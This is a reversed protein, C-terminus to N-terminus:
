FTRNEISELSGEQGSIQRRRINSLMKEFKRREVVRSKQNESGDSPSGFIIIKLMVGYCRFGLYILDQLGM